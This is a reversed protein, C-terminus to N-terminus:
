NKLIFKTTSYRCKTKKNNVNEFIYKKNKYFMLLFSLFYTFSKILSLNGMGRNFYLLQEDNIFIGMGKDM